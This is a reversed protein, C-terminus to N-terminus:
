FVVALGYIFVMGFALVQFPWGHLGDGVLKGNAANLVGLGTAYSGTFEPEIGDSSAGGTMVGAYTNSYSTATTAGPITSESVVKINSSDDYDDDFKAKAVALQLNDLDYVVYFYRLLADGALISNDNEAGRDIKLYCNQFSNYKEEIGSKDLDLIGDDASSTFDSAMGRLPVTFKHGSFAINFTYNELLVCKAVIAELELSISLGPISAALSDFLAPPLILNSSGSDFLIPHKTHAITTNSTSNSIQITDATVYFGLIPEKKDVTASISNRNPNVLDLIVLPGKYKSTDVAGFLISGWEADMSDLYLSYVTRKIYGNEVLKLPFNDYVGYAELPQLGIGFVMESSNAAKALGFTFNDIKYPGLEITDSVLSGEAFTLDGYNTYFSTDNTSFSDSKSPDFLGAEECIITPSVTATNISVTSANIGSTVTAPTFAYETHKSNANGTITDTASGSDYVYSSSSTFTNDNEDSNDASSSSPLITATEFFDSNFASTLEYDDDTTADHVELSTTTTEDDKKASEGEDKDEENGDISDRKNTELQAKKCYPNSLAFVWLDSSGTDLQVKLQQGPIGLKIDVYYSITLNNFLEIETTTTHNNSDGRKAHRNAVEGLARRKLRSNYESRKIHTNSTRDKLHVDFDLKFYGDDNRPERKAVHTDIDALAALHGNIPLFTANAYFALLPLFAALPAKM